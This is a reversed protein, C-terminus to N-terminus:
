VQKQCFINNLYSSWFDVDKKGNENNMSLVDIEKHKIKNKKAFVVFNDEASDNSKIKNFSVITLLENKDPTAYSNM